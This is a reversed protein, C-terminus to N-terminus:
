GNGHDGPSECGCAALDEDSIGPIGWDNTNEILELLKRQFVGVKRTWGTTSTAAAERSEEDIPDASDLPHLDEGPVMKLISTNFDAWTLAPLEEDVWKNFEQQPCKTWCAGDVFSAWTSVRSNVSISNLKGLDLALGHLKPTLNISIHSVNRDDCSRALIRDSLASFAYSLDTVEWPVDQKFLRQFLNKEDDDPVWLRAWLRDRELAVRGAPRPKRSKSYFLRVGGEIFGSVKMKLGTWKRASSERQARCYGVGAWVGMMVAGFMLTHGGSAVGHTVHLMAHSGGVSPTVGAKSPVLWHSNGMLAALLGSTGASGALGLIMLRTAFATRFHLWRQHSRLRAGISIPVVWGKFWDMWGLNPEEMKAFANEVQQGHEKAHSSLTTRLRTGATTSVILRLSSVELLQEGAVINDLLKPATDAFAWQLHQMEEDGGVRRRSSESILQKVVAFSLHMKEVLQDQHFVEAAYSILTNDITYDGLFRRRVGFDWRWRKVYVKRSLEVQFEKLPFITPVKKSQQFHEQLWQLFEIHNMTRKVRAGSPGSQFQIRLFNFTNETDTYAKREPGRKHYLWKGLSAGVAGFFIREGIFALEAALLSAESVVGQLTHASIQDQRTQAGHEYSELQQKQAGNLFSPYEKALHINNRAQSTFARWTEHEWQQQTSGHAAAFHKAFTDDLPGNQRFFGARFAEGGGQGDLLDRVTSAERAVAGCLQVGEGHWITSLLDGFVRLDKLAEAPIDEISHIMDHGAQSWDYHAHDHAAASSHPGGSVDHHHDGTDHHHDASSPQGGSVHHDGSVWEEAQAQLHQRLPNCVFFTAGNNSDNISQAHEDGMDKVLTGSALMHVIKLLDKDPSTEGCEHELTDPVKDFGQPPPIFLRVFM